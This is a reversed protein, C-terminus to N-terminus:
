SSPQSNGFSIPPTSALFPGSLTGSAVDGVWAAQGDESLASDYWGVDFEALFVTGSFSGGTSWSFSFSANECGQPSCAGWEQVVQQFVPSVCVQGALLEIAAELSHQRESGGAEGSSGVTTNIQEAPYVFCGAGPLVPPALARSSDSGVPASRRSTSVSSPCLTLLVVLIGITVAWPFMGPGVRM